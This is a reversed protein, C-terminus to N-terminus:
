VKYAAKKPDTWAISLADGLKDVLPREREQEAELALKEQLEELILREYEHQEFLGSPTTLSIMHGTVSIIMDDFELDSVLKTVTGDESEIAKLPRMKYGLCNAHYVSRTLRKERAVKVRDDREIRSCLSDVLTYLVDEVQEAETPTDERRRIEQKLRIQFEKQKRERYKREEKSERYEYGELDERPTLKELLNMKESWVEIPIRRQNVLELHASPTSYTM